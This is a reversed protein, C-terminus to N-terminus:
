SMSILLDHPATKKLQQTNMKLLTSTCSKLISKFLVTERLKYWDSRFIYFGVLHNDHPSLVGMLCSFFISKKYVHTHISLIPPSGHNRMLLDDMVNQFGFLATPSGFRVYGTESYSHCLKIVLLYTVQSLAPSIWWNVIQLRSHSFLWANTISLLGTIYKSNKWIGIDFLWAIHKSKLINLM